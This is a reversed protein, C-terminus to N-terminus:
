GLDRTVTFENAFAKLGYIIVLPNTVIWALLATFFNVEAIQKITQLAYLM